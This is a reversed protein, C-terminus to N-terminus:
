TASQKHLRATLKVKLDAFNTFYIVPYDKLNFELKSGSKAIFIPKKELGHAYGAEYYINPRPDTIDIIVFSAKRISALIQDTIRESSGSEDVREAQISLKSCVAKITDLVDELEPKSPDISMSVFAYSPVSEIRLMEEKTSIPKDEAAPMKLSGITADIIDIIKPTLNMGYPAEFILDFPDLKNMVLGGIMPPPAITFTVYCRNEVVIQRVAFKNQNIFTRREAGQPSDESQSYRIMASKFDELMKIAPENM